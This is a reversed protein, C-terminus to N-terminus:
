SWFGVIILDHYDDDNDHNHDSVWLSWIMMIMMVDHNHDSVWKWVSQATHHSCPRSRRVRCRHSRSASWHDIYNHDDHDHSHSNDCSLVCHCDTNESSNHNGSSFPKVRIQHPLHFWIVKDMSWKKAIRSFVRRYEESLFIQFLCPGFIWGTSIKLWFVFQSRLPFIQNAQDLCDLQPHPDKLLQPRTSTNTPPGGVVLAPISWM